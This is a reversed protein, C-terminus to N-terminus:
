GRLHPPDGPAAPLRAAGGPADALVRRLHGGPLRHHDGRLRAGGLSLPGMGAGHPLVPEGAGGTCAVAACGSRFLQAAAGPLRPGAEAYLAEAGTVALVVAGLLVFSTGPFRFFMDIAYYPNLALLVGPKQVIQVVGLVGLTGFWLLMVPGFLRGVRETGHSQLSFLVVLLLIVIPLVYPEFAPTAVKLGEVASLVSIAPTLVSDGYFLAAGTLGIAIIVEQRRGGKAVARLALATLALIGGEGRNDARMIVVVYKVTVVMVLAWVILSLVHLVAAEDIGGMGNLCQRMTYLPSTGIDGFVVGLAGIILAKRTPQAHGRHPAAKHPM